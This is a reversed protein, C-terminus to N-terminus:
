RVLEIPIINLVTAKDGVIQVHITSPRATPLANQTQFPKPTVKHGLSISWEKRQEM